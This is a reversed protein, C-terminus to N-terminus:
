NILLSEEPYSYNLNKIKRFLGILITLAGLRGIFMTFVIVLKSVDSLTPTIGVSLGVTSFASFTEFLVAILGLEPNFISILLTSLCIIIISLFIISFSRLLTETSLQRNYLEVRNKGRAISYVTIIAVAFTNVKIGGATSGPAGGIWMLFMTLLIAPAYLVSYDVVNFGATRPTVSCFFSLIIKGLLSHGSLSNNYEFIFFLISGSILLIFTVILTIRTNSNIIRPRHKYSQAKFIQRAKNIIFHKCLKYYNFLIPFGLGGFIILFGIITIFLYNYRLTSDYMGNSLTSFGANCFASISHFVSFFLRKNLSAFQSVDLSLFILIAGILEMFFTLLIIKLLTKFIQNINEENLLNKLFIQNEFSVNGTFFFGFFSTFTMIGIGGAQMLCMIIIKGTLTFTTATDTVVLGTICVASTSTFLADIFNIGNNTSKPLLLLLTGIIILILFASVFLFAPNIDQKLLTLSSGSLEILFIILILVYTIVPLGAYLLIPFNVSISNTALDRVLIIILLISFIVFNNLQLVLKRSTEIHFFMRLFFSISFIYLCITFFDEISYCFEDSINFGFRYIVLLAAILSVYLMLRNILQILLKKTKLYYDNLIIILHNIKM